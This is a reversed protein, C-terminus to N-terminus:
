RINKLAFNIPVDVTSPIPIEGDKAPHFQWQKVSKRAAEDLTAHGSSKHVTAAIVEGVRGVRVRIVVAGEWGQLRATRPYIPPPGQELRSPEYHAARAAQHDRLLDQRNRNHIEEDHQSARQQVPVVGVTPLPHVTKLSPRQFVIERSSEQIVTAPVEFADLSEVQEIVGAMSESSAQGVDPLWSVIGMITVLATLIPKQLFMKLTLAQLIPLRQTVPM